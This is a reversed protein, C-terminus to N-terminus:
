KLWCELYLGEKEKAAYDDDVVQVHEGVGRERLDFGAEFGGKGTCGDRGGWSCGGSAGRSM